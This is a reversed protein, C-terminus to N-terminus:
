GEAELADHEVTCREDIEWHKESKVCTPCAVGTQGFQDSQMEVWGAERFDEMLREKIELTDFDVSDATITESCFSCAIKCELNEINGELDVLNTLEKTKM